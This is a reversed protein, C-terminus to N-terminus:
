SVQGVRQKNNVIFFLIIIIRSNVTICIYTCVVDAMPIFNMLEPRTKEVEISITIPNSSCLKNHERIHAIM